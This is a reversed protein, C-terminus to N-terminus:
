PDGIVATTMDRSAAEYLWPDPDSVKGVTETVAM